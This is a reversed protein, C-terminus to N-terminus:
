KSLFYATSEPSKLAALCTSFCLLSSTPHLPTLHTKPARYELGLKRMHSSNFCLKSKKQRPYFSALFHHFHRMKQASGSPTYKRKPAEQRRPLPSAAAAATFNQVHGKHGRTKPTSYGADSMWSEELSSHIANRSIQMIIHHM